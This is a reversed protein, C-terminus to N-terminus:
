PDTVLEALEDVLVNRSDSDKFVISPLFTNSVFYCVFLKLFVSYFLFYFFDLSEDM